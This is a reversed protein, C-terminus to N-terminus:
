RMSMTNSLTQTVGMNLPLTIEYCDNVVKIDSEVIEKAKEDNRSPQTVENEREYERVTEKLTKIKPRLIECPEGACECNSMKFNYYSDCSWPSEVEAPLPVSDLLCM